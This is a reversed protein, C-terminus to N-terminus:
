WKYYKVVLLQLGSNDQCGFLKCQYRISKNLLGILATDIFFIDSQDSPYLFHSWSRLVFKPNCKTSSHSFVLIKLHYLYVHINSETCCLLLYIGYRNQKDVDKPSVITKGSIVKSNM